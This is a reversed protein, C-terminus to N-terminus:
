RDTDAADRDRTAAVGGNETVDYDMSVTARIEAADTERSDVRETGRIVIEFKGMARPLPDDGRTSEVQPMVLSPNSVGLTTMEIETGDGDLKKGRYEVEVLKARVLVTTSSGVRDIRADLCPTLDITAEPLSYAVDRVPNVRCSITVGRSIFGRYEEATVNGAHWASEVLDGWEVLWPAADNRQADLAMAVASRAVWRSATGSSIRQTMEALVERQTQTDTVRVELLLAWGPMANIWAVGKSIGIVVSGAGVGALALLFVGAAALGRRGVRNGRRLRRPSAVNRGCEPCHVVGKGAGVGEIGACDFGCARCRPHDDVKKGRLGMVLLVLGGLLALPVLVISASIITLLIERSM